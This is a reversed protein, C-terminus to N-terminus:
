RGPDTSRAGRGSSPRQALVLLLIGVLLAGSAALPPTLFPGTPVTGLNAAQAVLSGGMVLLAWGHLAPRRVHRRQWPLIWGTRLAAVGCVGGAIGLVAVAGAAAYVMEAGM